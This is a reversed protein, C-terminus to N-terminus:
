HSASGLRRRLCCRRCHDLSLTPGVRHLIMQGVDQKSRYSQPFDFTALRTFRQAFQEYWPKNLGLEARLRDAERASSHKGLMM